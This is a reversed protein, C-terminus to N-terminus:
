LEERRVMKIGKEKKNIGEKMEEKVTDKNSKTEEEEDDDGYTQWPTLGSTLGNRDWTDLLRKLPRGRNRRGTPSHHKM